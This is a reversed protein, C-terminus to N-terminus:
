KAEAPQAAENLAALAKDLYKRVRYFIISATTAGGSRGEHFNYGYMDGEAKWKEAERHAEETEKLREEDAAKHLELARTIVSPLKRLREVEALLKAGADTVRITRTIRAALEHKNCVRGDQALDRCNCEWFGSGFKLLQYEAAKLTELMAAASAVAADARQREADLRQQAAALERELEEVVQKIGLVGERLGIGKIQGVPHKVQVFDALEGLEGELITVREKAEGLERTLRESEANAAALDATLADHDSLLRLRDDVAWAIGDREEDANRRIQKVQEDSLKVPTM